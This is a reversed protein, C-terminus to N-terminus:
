IHGFIAKDRIDNSKTTSVAGVSRGVQGAAQTDLVRGGDLHDLQGARALKVRYVGQPSKLIASVAYHYGTSQLAITM